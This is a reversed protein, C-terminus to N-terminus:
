ATWRALVHDNSAWLARCEDCVYAGGTSALVHGEPCRLSAACLVPILGRVPWGPYPSASVSPGNLLDREPM